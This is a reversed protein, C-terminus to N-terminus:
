GYTEVRDKGARKAAYLAADAHGVLDEPSTTRVPFMAVGISVTLARCCRATSVWSGRAPSGRASASPWAAGRRGPARAGPAAGRRRAEGAARRRPGDRAAGRPGAGDAHQAPDRRVGRRRLAGRRGPEPPARVPARAAMDRLVADGALHGNRDNFVKFDDLDIMLLSVPTGYRRARAMEHELREYFHRHNYLGTLGDTVAQDQVRKYLRAHEIAVAAQEALGIALAVEDPTWHREQTREVLVLVGVPRGSFM